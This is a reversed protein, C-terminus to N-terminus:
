KFYVDRFRDKLHYKEDFNDKHNKLYFNNNKISSELMLKFNFFNLFDFMM